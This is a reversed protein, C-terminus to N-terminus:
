YWKIEGTETATGIPNGMGAVGKGKAAGIIAAGAAASLLHGIASIITNKTNTDTTKELQERLFELNKEFQEKHMAILDDTQWVKDWNQTILADIQTIQEKTLKNQTEKLIIEKALLQTNKKCQEVREKYTESNFDFEVKENQAEYYTKQAFYEATKCEQEFKKISFDKTNETIYETLKNLATNSEIYAKEAEKAGAENFIKKIEAAGRENKGGLTKTEEETKDTQANLNKIQAITMLSTLDMPNYKTQIGNAGGGNPASTTGTTGGAGYMLSTSLGADQLQKVQAQPTYYKDILATQRALANEAAQENYKFNERRDEAAMEKAYKNNLATQGLGILGGIVGSATNQGLTTFFEAGKGNAM